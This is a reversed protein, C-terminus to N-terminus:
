IYYTDGQTGQKWDNILVTTNLVKKTQKNKVKNLWALTLKHKLKFIVKTDKAEKQRERCWSM